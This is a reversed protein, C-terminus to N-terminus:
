SVGLHFNDRPMRVGAPLLIMRTIAASLIRASKPCLNHLARRAGGYGLDLIKARIKDSCFPALDDIWCGLFIFLHHYIHWFHTLLSIESLNWVTKWIFYQCNESVNIFDSVNRICKWIKESLNRVSIQMQCNESLIWVCKHSNESM